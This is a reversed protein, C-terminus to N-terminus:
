SIFLIFILKICFLGIGPLINNLIFMKCSYQWFLCKSLFITLIFVQCSYQWFLCTVPIDNNLFLGTVPNVNNLIFRYWSTTTWFLGIGSFRQESFIQVSFFMKWFIGTRVAQSIVTKFRTPPSSSVSNFLGVAYFFGLM